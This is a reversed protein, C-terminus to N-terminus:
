TRATLVVSRGDPRYEVIAGAENLAVTTIGRTALLEGYDSVALNEQIAAATEADFVVGEEASLERV